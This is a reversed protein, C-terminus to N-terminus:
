VTSTDDGSLVMSVTDSTEHDITLLNSVRLCVARKKLIKNAVDTRHLLSLCRCPKSTPPVFEPALHRAIKKAHGWILTTGGLEPPVAPAYRLPFFDVNPVNYLPRSINWNSVSM